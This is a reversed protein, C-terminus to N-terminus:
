ELYMKEIEKAISNIEYKRTIFNERISLRNSNRKDLLDYISELWKQVSDHLSLIRTASSGVIGEQTVNDSIICPLGVAQAEMLSVPLGEFISPLCFVDMANYLCDVDKRSGTFVFKDTLSEMEVLEVIDAKEEGDGVLLFNLIDRNQRDLKAIKVFFSMNKVPAFRAINGVVFSSSNFGLNNKILIRKQEDYPYFKDLDIANNIVTFSKKGYIYKGALQGCSLRHSAYSQIYKKLIFEIISHFPISDLAPDQTSHAHYYINEICMKKAAMIIVAGMHISHIHVAKYPGNNKLIKTISNIYHRVGNKRMQPIHFIRGGMSEIEDDFPGKEVRPVCFDFQIKNRDITRYLNMVVSGVGGYSLTGPFQLIRVVQSM